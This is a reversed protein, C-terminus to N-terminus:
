KLTNIQLNNGGARLIYTGQAATLSSVPVRSGSRVYRGAIKSGRLDFMELYVPVGTKGNHVLVSNGPADFTLMANGRAASSMCPFQVAIPSTNKLVNLLATYAPEALAVQMFMRYVEAQADL